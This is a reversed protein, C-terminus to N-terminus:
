APRRVFLGVVPRARDRRRLGLVAKLPAVDHDSFFGLGGNFGQVDDLFHEDGRRRVDDELGNELRVAMVAKTLKCTRIAKCMRM